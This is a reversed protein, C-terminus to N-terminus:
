GVSSSGRAKAARVADGIKRRTEKSTPGRVKGSHHFTSHCGSHAPALNVLADNGHDGDVHHIALGRSRRRAVGVEFFIDEGCFYCPWPQPESNALFLLTHHAHGM